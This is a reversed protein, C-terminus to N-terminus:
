KNQNVWEERLLRNAYGTRYEDMQKVYLHETKHMFRFGCKKQVRESRENGEYYGCWIIEAGLDEFTYRIIEKVTETMLGKGWYPVGLWYGIEYENEKTALDTKMIGVSGIVSNTEKLVIAFTNDVMLINKIIERSEEVSKHVNWGCIPGVRDDSAYKYCEEADDESWPRLILRETELIM